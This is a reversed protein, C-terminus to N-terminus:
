KIKLKNPTSKIKKIDEGKIKFDELSLETKLLSRILFEKENIEQIQEENFKAFGFKKPRAAERPSRGCERRAIREM